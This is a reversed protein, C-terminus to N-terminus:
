GYKQIDSKYNGLLKYYITEKEIGKLAKSVNEESLNGKIDIYFYYRWAKDAIPRSEIKVM